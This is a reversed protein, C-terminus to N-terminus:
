GISNWPPSLRRAVEGKGWDEEEGFHEGSVKPRVRIGSSKGGGGGRCSGPPLYKTQSPNTGPWAGTLACPPLPNAPVLRLYALLQPSPNVPGWSLAV